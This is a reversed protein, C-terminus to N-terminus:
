RIKWSNKKENMNEVLGFYGKPLFQVGINIQDCPVGDRLVSGQITQRSGVV